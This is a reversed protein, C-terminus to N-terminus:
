HDRRGLQRLHIMMKRWVAIPEAPFGAVVSHAPMSHTVGSKAAIRSHAGIRLHGAVQAAGGFEVNEEVVVSGALGAGSSMIVHSSLQCNHAIQVFSDLKCDNGIRTPELFGAAIVSNAGIHVRDGIQVGAYHPVAIRNNGETRYGFGRAGVVVGAQLICGNGITVGPYLTVHPELITDRGVESGAPVVCFEGIRAGSWVLGDVVATPHVEADWAISPKSAELLPEHYKKLLSVMAAYPDAVQLVAKANGPIGEVGFPALVLGASCERAAGKWEPHLWFTIDETQAAHIPAAGQFVLTSDGELLGDLEIALQSASLPQIKLGRSTCHVLAM